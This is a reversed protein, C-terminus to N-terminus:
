DRESLTLEIGGALDSSVNYIFSGVTAIATFLVINVAGILAAVGFVRGASILAGGQPDSVSTLDSYTGNLQDWVGMGDLIGYLFGVAVMWALFGAVNLVLSLKLVSWPDLHKLQLSARRPVRSPRVRTSAGAPPPQEPAPETRVTQQQQFMPHSTRVTAQDFVGSGRGSSSGQTGHQPRGVQIGPGGKGWSGTPVARQWPPASNPVGPSQTREPPEDAKEVPAVFQTEEAAGDVPQGDALPPDTAVAPPEEAETERDGPQEPTRGQESSAGITRESM